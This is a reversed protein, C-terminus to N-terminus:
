LRGDIEIFVQGPGNVLIDTVNPERLFREIPGLGFIDDMVGRLLQAKETASLSAGQESLLEDVRDSCERHLREAPMQRAETLNLMDLLRRHVRAKIAQLRISEGTSRVEVEGNNDITKEM